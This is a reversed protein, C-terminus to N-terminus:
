IIWGHTRNWYHSPVLETLGNCHVQDGAWKNDIIILGWPVFLSIQIEIGLIKDWYSVYSFKQCINFM